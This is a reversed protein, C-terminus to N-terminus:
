LFESLSSKECLVPLGAFMAEVNVPHHAAPVTVNVLAHAGRM